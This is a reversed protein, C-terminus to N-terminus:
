RMMGTFTIPCHNKNYKKAIQRGIENLSKLHPAALERAEKYDIEKSLLRLKIIQIQYRADEANM